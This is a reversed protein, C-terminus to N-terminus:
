RDSASGGDPLAGAASNHHISTLSILLIQLVIHRKPESRSELELRVCSPGSRARRRQVSVMQHTTLYGAVMERLLRPKTNAVTFSSHPMVDASATMETVYWFTERGAASM